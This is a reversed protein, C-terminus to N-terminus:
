RSANEHMGNICEMRTPEHCDIDAHRWRGYCSPCAHMHGVPARLSWVKSDDDATVITTETEENYEGDHDQVINQYAHRMMKMAAECYMRVLPNAQVERELQIEDIARIVDDVQVAVDKTM